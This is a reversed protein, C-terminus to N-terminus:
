QTVVSKWTPNNGDNNAYRRQTKEKVIELVTIYKGQASIVHRAATILYKGSYFIDLDKQTNNSSNRQTLLNFNLTRGVTLIPNGPVTMKVTIYNALNIQSTRNPVYTEIFIDQAVSGASEKIYPIEKQGSNSVAVKVVSDYSELQTKGLRNKLSGINTENQQLNFNTTTFSKKFPDISILKNAIMGSNINELMDQTKVFEYDLVTFIKETMDASQLNNLQYKYTAMPEASIMSKISRFNYGDKTEFFLMDAGNTGGSQPRAYTSLWSIAEFPKLRPITFDYIGTTEEINYIKNPLVQLINLVNKVLDSIKTGTYSKTIKNQESLLLEESCFYLTYFSTNPNDGPIRDGIKYVRFYGSNTPGNKNKGYEIELFENGDLQLAEIFGQGDVVSLHGSAVFSFIDEYYSFEILLKEFDISGSATTFQLKKIYFDQPYSIGNKEVNNLLLDM